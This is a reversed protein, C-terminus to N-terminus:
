NEAHSLGWNLVITNLFPVKFISRQNDKWCTQKNKWRQSETRFRNVIFTIRPWFVEGAMCAIFFAKSEVAGIVFTARSNNSQELKPHLRLDDSPIFVIAM